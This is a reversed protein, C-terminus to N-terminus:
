PSCIVLRMTRTATVAPIRAGQCVTQVWRATRTRDFGTLNTYTAPTKAEATRTLTGHFPEWQIQTLSFTVLGVGWRTAPRWSRPLPRNAARCQRGRRPGRRGGGAGCPVCPPDLLCGVGRITLDTAVITRMVRAHGHPRLAEPLIGPRQRCFVVAWGQRPIERRLWGSVMLVM